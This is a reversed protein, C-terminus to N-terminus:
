CGMTNSLLASNLPLDILFSNIGPGSKAVFNQLLLLLTKNDIKSSCLFALILFSSKSPLRRSSCTNPTRQFVSSSINCNLTEMLSLGVVLLPINDMKFEIYSGSPKSVGNKSLPFCISWFSHLFFSFHSVFSGSSRWVSRSFHFIFSRAKCSTCM